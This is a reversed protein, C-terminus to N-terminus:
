VWFYFDLIRARYSLIPATGTLVVEKHQAKWVLDRDRANVITMAWEGSANFVHVAWLSGDEIRPRPVEFTINPASNQLCVPLSSGGIGLTEELDKGDLPTIRYIHVFGHVCAFLFVVVFWHLM